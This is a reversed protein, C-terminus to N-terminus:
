LNTAKNCIYQPLEEQTISPYLGSDYYIKADPSIFELDGENLPVYGGYEGKVAHLYLDNVKGVKIIKM